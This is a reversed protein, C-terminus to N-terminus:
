LHIEIENKLSSYFLEFAEREKELVYMDEENTKKWWKKAFEVEKPNTNAPYLVDVPVDNKWFEGVYEDNMPNARFSYTLFQKAEEVSPRWYFPKM